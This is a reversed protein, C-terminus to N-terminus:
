YMRRWYNTLWNCVSGTEGSVDPGGLRLIEAVEEDTVARYVLTGDFQSESLARGAFESFATKLAADGNDFNFAPALSFPMDVMEMAEKAAGADHRAQPSTEMLDDLFADFEDSIKGEKRAKNLAKGKTLVVGWFEKWAKLWTAFQGAHKRGKIVRGDSTVYSKGSAVKDGYERDKGKGLHFLLWVNKWRLLSCPILSRPSPVLLSPSPGM